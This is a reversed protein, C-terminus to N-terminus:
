IQYDEAPRVRHLFAFPPLQAKPRPRHWLKNRYEILDIHEFGLGVYNRECERLSPLVAEAVLETLQAIQNLYGIDTGYLKFWEGIIRSIGFRRHLEAEFWIADDRDAFPIAFWLQISDACGTQLDKLRRKVNCSLGIKVRQVKDDEDVIAAVYVFHLDNEM